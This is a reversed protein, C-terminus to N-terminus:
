SIAQPLLPDAGPHGAPSVLLRLSAAKGGAEPLELFVCSSFQRFLVIVDYDDNLLSNVKCTGVLRNLRVFVMAPSQDTRIAYVVSNVGM